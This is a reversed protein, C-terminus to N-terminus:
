WSLLRKWLPKTPPAQASDQLTGSEVPPTPNRPGKSMAELSRDYVMEQINSGFDLRIRNGLETLGSSGAQELTALRELFAKVSSLDDNVNFDIKISKNSM